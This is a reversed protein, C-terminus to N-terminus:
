RTRRARAVAGRLLPERVVYLGLFFALYSALGWALPARLAAPLLAALAATVGCWGAIGGAVGPWERRMAYWLDIIRYFAALTRVSLYVGVAFVVVDALATM